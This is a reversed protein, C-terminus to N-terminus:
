RTLSSRILGITYTLMKDNDTLYDEITPIVEYDPFIGRGNPSTSGNVASAIKMFYFELEIKTNPLILVNGWYSNNGYYGGGTEEGIFVGRKNYQIISCLESTTSASRGDILVYINGNYADKKPRIIGQNPMETYLYSGDDAVIINKKIEELDKPYRVHDAFTFVHDPPIVMEVRDYYRFPKDVLHSYLNIANDEEGGSNGRLDLILNGIHKDRIVAFVSDIFSNYVSVDKIDQFTQITLRAINSAPIQFDLYNWETQIGKEQEKKKALASETKGKISFSVIKDSKYVRAKVRFSDPNEILLSYLYPFDEEILCYKGTKNFGDSVLHNALTEVIGAIPKDNISLIESGIIITSDDSNNESIYVRNKILKVKLPFSAISTKYYDDYDSTMRLHTHACGIKPIVSSCQYYFEAETMPGKLKNFVIDFSKDISDKTNYRYLGPHVEELARRLISFDENIEDKTYSKDPDYNHQGFLIYCISLFFLVCLNKM